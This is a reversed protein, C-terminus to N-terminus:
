TGRHPIELPRRGEGEVVGKGPPRFLLCLCVCICDTVAPTGELSGWTGVWSRLSRGVQARSSRSVTAEATQSQQEPEM